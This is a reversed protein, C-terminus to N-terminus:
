LSKSVNRLCREPSLLPNKYRSTPETKAAMKQLGFYTNTALPWSTKCSDKQCCISANKALNRGSPLWRKKSCFNTNSAHHWPTKSGDKTSVLPSMKCSASENWLQKEASLLPNTESATPINRLCGQSVCTQIKLPVDHRKAVTAQTKQFVNVDIQVSKAASKRAGFLNGQLWHEASWLPYKLCSTLVSQLWRKAGWFFATTQLSVDLYKATLKRGVFAPIRVCSFQFMVAWFLQFNNPFPSRAYVRRNDELHQLCASNSWM